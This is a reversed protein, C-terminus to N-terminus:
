WNSTRPEAAAVNMTSPRVTALPRNSATRVCSIASSDCEAVPELELQGIRHLGEARGPLLPDDAMHELAVGGRDFGEADRLDGGLEFLDHAHERYEVPHEAAQDSEDRGQRSTQHDRQHAIGHSTEHRDAHDTHRPRVRKV